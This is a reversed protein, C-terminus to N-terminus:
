GFVVLDVRRGSQAHGVVRCDRGEGGLGIRGSRVRAESGLALGHGALGVPVTWMGRGPALLLLANEALALADAENDFLTELVVDEALAHRSLRSADAASVARYPQALDARRERTITPPAVTEAESLPVWRPRHRATVRWAPRPADLPSPDALLAGEDVLAPPLGTPAGLRGCALFGDGADGWWLGGGAALRECAQGFTVQGGDMGFVCGAVGPAVAEAADFAAASVPAAVGSRALVRRLMGPVTATHGAGSADGRADFTVRGDPNSGLRFFSGQATIAWDYTGATPAAGELAAYSARPTGATVPAGRVEVADLALIDRAHVRYILRAPDCLQPAVGRVQGWVEMVAKGALDAGGDAGGTGGYVGLMPQELGAAADRLRLRAWLAGARWDLGTGALIRTRSPFADGRSRLFTIEAARGDVGLAFTAADLAGDANDIALDAVAMAARRPAAPSVPISRDVTVQGALRGEFHMNPREGDDPRGTWDRDSWRYTIAGAATLGGPPVGLPLAGFVLPGGTTTELGDTAAIEVLLVTDQWAPQFASLPAAVPLPAPNEVGLPATGFAFISV